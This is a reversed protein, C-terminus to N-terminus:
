DAYIEFSRIELRGDPTGGDKPPLRVQEPWSYLGVYIRYTGVTIDGPLQIDHSDFVVEGARWASTPYTGNCPMSDHGIVPVANADTAVHVLAILDAEVAARAQWALTVSLTEGRTAASPWVSAGVLAIDAGLDAQIPIAMEVTSDPPVTFVKTLPYHEITETVSGSPFRSALRATGHYDKITDVLYHNTREPFYMQCHASNFGRATTDRLLLRRNQADSDSSWPSLYVADSEALRRAAAAIEYEGATFGDFTDPHNAFRVFYDFANWFLSLAVVMALVGEAFPPRVRQLLWTYSVFLGAVVIMVMAPAAGLSRTFIPAGDSFVTTLTLGIAWGLILLAGSDQRLRKVLVLAGIWFFVSLLPDFNPRGPLNHRIMTDGRISIGLLTNGLNRLLALPVNAAGFTGATVTAARGFFDAPNQLFHLGLPAFVLMAVLGALLLGRLRRGHQAPHLLIVGLSILIATIPIFRANPSIYQAAGIIAGSAVFCRLRGRQLGIWFLHFAPIAFLQVHIIETGLRSLMINWFLGAQLLAAIAAFTRKQNDPLLRSLLDRCALYMLPITLAGSLATVLRGTLPTIGVILAMVTTLYVHLPHVGAGFNDFYIPFIRLELVDRATNVFWAEDYWLKPPVSGLLVYRAALGFLCASVLLLTPLRSKSSASM